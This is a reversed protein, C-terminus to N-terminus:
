SRSARPPRGASNAPASRSRGPNPLNRSWTALGPRTPQGAPFCHQSAGDAVLREMAARTAGDVPTYVVMRTGPAAKSRSTTSTMGLRPYLPHRFVKAHAAMQAVDQSAWIAAFEPSTVEMRRIFGTWAPDGVHRGYAARLQAVMAARQDDRNEVASCCAPRTVCYLRTNRESQPPGATQPFRAATPVKCPPRARCSLTIRAHCRNQRRGCRVPPNLNEASGCSSAVTRSTAPKYRAGRGFATTAHAPSFDCTGPAPASGASGAAAARCGRAASGRLLQGCGDACEGAVPVLVGPRTGPDLVRILDEGADVARLSLCLTKCVVLPPPLRRSAV